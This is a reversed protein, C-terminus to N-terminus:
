STSQSSTQASTALARLQAEDLLTITGRDLRVLGEREFYKLMRSVVERASGMDRAIRDHTAAIIPGGQAKAETLLYTALRKDFSVFLVQQMVWMVESFRETMQKYAFAEAYPNADVISQFASASIVLVDVATQADIFVDFTVLPMVCAASLMCAEGRGVRFLTIERGEESLSYVRLTGRAVLLVGICDETGNHVHAGAAFSRPQTAAVLQARQQDSLKDWIPFLRELLTTIETQPTTM